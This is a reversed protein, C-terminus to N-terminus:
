TESLIFSKGTSDKIFKSTLHSSSWYLFLFIVLLLNFQVS